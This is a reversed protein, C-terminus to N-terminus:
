ASEILRIAKLARNHAQYEANPAIGLYEAIHAPPMAELYRLEMVQRDRPPLNAFISEMWDIAEIESFADPAQFRELDEMPALRDFHSHRKHAVDRSEWKAVTHVVVAIPAKYQKGRTWEKILREYTQSVADQADAEAYYLVSHAIGSVVEWYRACVTDIHGQRLDNLDRREAVRRALAVEPSVQERRRSGM